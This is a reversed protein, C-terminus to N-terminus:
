RALVQLEHISWYLGSTTGTQKLVIATSLGADPLAIDIWPYDDDVLLGRAFAALVPGSRVTTEVGGEGIRDVTLGRPYDRLSRGSMGLRIGAVRVPQAFEVRIWESGNQGHGTFWRSDRDGDIAEGIGADRDSATIRLDPVPVQRTGAMSFPQEPSTRQDSLRFATTEGFDRVEALRASQARLLSVTDDAVTRDGYDSRHVIVYRIGIAQLADLIAGMQDPENLPTSRGGLWEQLTSGYGSYGNVIQHGHVLTAYQYTLTPAVDWEKVPLELVGGQPQGSLWTYVPRDAERGAADFPALRIPASWGEAVIVAALLPVALRSARRAHIGDMASFVRSAGIAALVSLGLLVVVSFRAPARLGDLGPVIQALGMYPSFPLARHGWASPEAGLSLVFACVTITLYCWVYTRTSLRSESSPIRSEPNPIPSESRRFFAFVALILVTLGPFLQREAQLDTALWRSWLRVPEAVHLYSEVNAAFNVLDGYSRRLGYRERVDLYVMVIPALSLLICAAAVSLDALTRGIRAKLVDRRAVCEFVVVMVVPLSLFYLFYGNSYAQWAFALAFLGLARLSFTAFYRHLSWLCIPMWGSALVQLHSIQDTRVPSFGFALAALLAADDRGTITRALLFMGIAALVYTLIFAVNYALISNGTLWVVPALPVALGLLHESFALTQTNPYLIPANWLGSLGLRLRQADWGLIWANLLPDGLDSPLASGPHSALPWTGAVALLFFLGLLRVRDAM